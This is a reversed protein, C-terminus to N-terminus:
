ILVSIYIYIGIYIYVSMDPLVEGMRIELVIIETVPHNEIIIRKYNIQRSKKLCKILVAGFHWSLTNKGEKNERSKGLFM